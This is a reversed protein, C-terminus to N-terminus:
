VIDSYKILTSIRRLEQAKRVNKNRTSENMVEVAHSSPFWGRKDDRMRAGEFWGDPMKRRISVVDGIDLSLEDPLQATYNSIVQFQPSEYEHYLQEGPMCPILPPSIAQAWRTAETPDNPVFLYCADRGRHNELMHLAFANPIQRRSVVWRSMMYFNERNRTPFPQRTIIGIPRYTLLQRKCYDIVQYVECDNKLCKKPLQTLIAIDTFLILYIREFKIEPKMLKRMRWQVRFIEGRRVLHRKPDVIPLTKIHQPYVLSRSIAHLGELSSLRHAEVDCRYAIEQIKFLATKVSQYNDHHEPTFELINSLLLPLRTIRQVPLMLFSTLDLNHCEKDKELQTIIEVFKPNNKMLEKYKQNQYYQNKCYPIFRHFKSINNLILDTVSEIVLSNEVIKMLNTALFSSCELMAVTSSFLHTHDTQTLVRYAEPLYPSLRSDNRFKTLISLSLKYSVETTYLEYMAEQRKIERVSLEKVLGAAKVKNQHSWLPVNVRRLTTISIKRDDQSTDKLQHFTLVLKFKKGKCDEYNSASLNASSCMQLPPVSLESEQTTFNSIEIKMNKEHAIKNLMQIIEDPSDISDHMSNPLYGITTLPPQHGPMPTFTDTESTGFNLSKTRCIEYDIADKRQIRKDKSDTKRQALDSDFNEDTLFACSASYNIKNTNEVSRTRVLKINEFTQLHYSDFEEQPMIQTAQDRQPPPPPFISTEANSWCENLNDDAIPTHQETSINPPTPAPRRPIPITSIDSTSFSQSLKRDPTLLPLKTHRYRSPKRPVPPAVMDEIGSISSSRKRQHKITHSTPKIKVPVAYIPAKNLSPPPMSGHLVVSPPREPTIEPKNNEEESSTRSHESYDTVDPHLKTTSPIRPSKPTDMNHESDTSSNTRQTTATTNCLHIPLVTLHTVTNTSHSM